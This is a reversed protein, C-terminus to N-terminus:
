AAGGVGARAVAPRSAEREGAVAQILAQEDKGAPDLFQLGVQYTPKHDVLGCRRVVARV